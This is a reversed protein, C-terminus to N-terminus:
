RVQPLHYLSQKLVNWLFSVSSPDDLRDKFRLFEGDQDKGHRYRPFAPLKSYARLIPAKIKAGAEM